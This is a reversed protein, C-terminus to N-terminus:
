QCFYSAPEPATGEPELGLVRDNGKITLSAVGRQFEEDVLVVPFAALATEGDLSFEVTTSGGDRSRAVHTM